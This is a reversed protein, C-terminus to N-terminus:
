RAIRRPWVQPHRRHMRASSAASVCSLWRTIASLGSMKRWGPRAGLSCQSEGPIVLIGSGHTGRGRLSGPHTRRKWCCPSSSADRERCTGPNLFVLVQVDQVKTHQRKIFHSLCAFDQALIFIPGSAPGPQHKNQLGVTCTQASDWLFTHLSSVRPPSSPELRQKSRPTSVQSDGASPIQWATWVPRPATSFGKLKHRHTGCPRLPLQSASSM